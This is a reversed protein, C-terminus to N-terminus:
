SQKVMNGYSLTTDPIHSAPANTRETCIAVATKKVSWLDAIRMGNGKLEQYASRLDAETVGVNSLEAAASVWSKEFRLRSIEYFILMLAKATESARCRGIAKISVDKTAHTLLANDAKAINAARIETDPACPASASEVPTENEPQAGINIRDLENLRTLTSNEASVTTSSKASLSPMVITYITSDNFRRKRELWGATMLERIAKAITHRNMGTSKELEAYSPFADGTKGNTYYRLMVFMRFASSSLDKASEIFAFPITVFQGIKDYLKSDNM